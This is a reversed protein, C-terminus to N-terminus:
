LHDRADDNNEKVVLEDEPTVSPRVVVFNTPSVASLKSRSLFVIALTPFETRLVAAVDDRPTGVIFATVCQKRVKRRIGEGTTEPFEEHLAENTKRLVTAPIPEVYANRIVVYRWAFKDKNTVEYARKLHHVACWDRETEIAGIGRGDTIRAFSEAAIGRVWLTDALSMIEDVVADGLRNIQKMVRATTEVGENIMRRAIQSSLRPSSVANKLRTTGAVMLREADTVQQLPATFALEWPLRAAAVQPLTVTKPRIETLPLAEVQGTIIEGTGNQRLVDTIMAVAEGDVICPAGSIGRADDHTEGVLEECFLELMPVERRVVGHFGGRMGGRLNAFGVTGWRVDAAVSGLTGIAIPDVPPPKSLRFLSWDPLGAEVFTASDTSDDIFRVTMSKRDGVVHTATLVLGDTSVLSGTGLTKSVDLIEVVARDIAAPIM